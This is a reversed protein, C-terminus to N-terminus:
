MGLAILRDVSERDVRQMRDVRIQRNPADVTARGLGHIEMGDVVPLGELVLAAVAVMAHGAEAPNWLYGGRITGDMLGARAQSPLLSGVVAVRAAPGGARVANAAGIPGNAGLALVGRLAPRQAALERTMRESAALDDGGEFREAALRMDPFRRRQFAIAADAWANHLPTERTGVYIAYEGTGGTEAALMAMQAEGFARSDIMEVNWDRGDQNPGEHTVVVIGAARARRLAPATVAVDLPVLGIADVRRRVLEDVLAAQLPAELRAPGATSAEIGREAGAERMGRALADFWPIGARKTVTVMSRRVQALGHGPRGLALAAGGGALLTLVHRRQM